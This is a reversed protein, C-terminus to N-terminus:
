ATTIAHLLSCIKYFWDFNQESLRTTNATFLIHKLGISLKEIQM